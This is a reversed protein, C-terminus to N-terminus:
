TINLTLPTAVALGAGTTKIKLTSKKNNITPINDVVLTTQGPIDTKVIYGKELQYFKVVANDPAMVISSFECVTTSTLSTVTIPDEIQPLIATTNLPDYLVISDGIEVNALSDFRGINGDLGGAEGDTPSTDAEARDVM